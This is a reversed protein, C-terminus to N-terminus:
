KGAEIKNELEEMNKVFEKGIDIGLEESIVLIAWLCDALEHALKEDVNDIKRLNNKAMMLKMLDGVDGVLGQTRELSGWPKGGAKSEIVAYKDKIVKARDVLEKLEM